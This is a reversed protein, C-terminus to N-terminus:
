LRWINELNKHFIKQLFSMWMHKQTWKSVLGNGPGPAHACFILLFMSKKTPVGREGGGRCM